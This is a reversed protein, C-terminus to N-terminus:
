LYSSTIYRMLDSSLSGTVDALAVFNFVGTVMKPFSPWFLFGKTLGVCLYFLFDECISIVQNAVTIMDINLHQLCLRIAVCFM